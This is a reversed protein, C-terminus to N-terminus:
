LVGRLKALIQRAKKEDWYADLSRYGAIDTAERWSIKIGMEEYKKQIRRAEEDLKSGYHGHITKRM